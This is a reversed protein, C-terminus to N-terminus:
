RGGPRDLACRHHAGGGRVEIYRTGNGLILNDRFAVEPGVRAVTDNFLIINGRVVAGPAADEAWIGSQNGLPLTGSVNTGILNSIVQNHSGSLAIAPGSNGSLLNEQILNDAGAVSVGGPCGNAIALTGSVNAGIYNGSITNDDSNDFYIGAGGNGSILNREGTTEGGIRNGSANSLSIGVSNSLATTGSVNVGIYNGSITVNDSGYLYIGANGNGSLLNREGSTDGGILNDNANFLVIGNNNSLPTTGTVDTGIYNGSVTNGTAGSGEISVGDGDNGSILNREGSTDGGILNDNANFLVIGDSNSLPATGTIDTGIHNGSVAIDSSSDIYVGAGGNGSFLNGQGLPGDGVSNDGGIICNVAGNIVAVGDGPFHLVQLGRINVNQMGNIVLGDAGGPLGSGDLVVGANSGDITLGATAIAPLTNSLVITAPSAPPFIATNFLITDNDGAINMAWRLTGYGSNATSTVTWTAAPRLPREALALPPAAQVSILRLLLIIAVLSAGLALLARGYRVHHTNRTAHHMTKRTM